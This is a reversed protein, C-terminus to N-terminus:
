CGDSPTIYDFGEHFHGVCGGCFDAFHQTLLSTQLQFKTTRKPLNANRLQPFTISECAHTMKNVLSHTDRIGPAKRATPIDLPTPIYVHTLIDQPHTSMGGICSFQSLATPYLQYTRPICGVPIVDQKLETQRDTYSGGGGM